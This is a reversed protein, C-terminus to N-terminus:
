RASRRPREAPRPSRPPVTLSRVMRSRPRTRTGSSRDASCHSRQPSSCAGYVSRQVMTTAWRYARRNRSPGSEERSSTRPYLIISERDSKTWRWAAGGRQHARRDDAVPGIRGDRCQRGTQRVLPRHRCKARPRGAAGSSRARDAPGRPGRRNMLCGLTARPAAFGPMM